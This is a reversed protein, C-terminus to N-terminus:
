LSVAFPCARIFANGASLRRLVGIAAHRSRLAPLLRHQVAVSGSLARLFQGNRFRGQRVISLDDTRSVAVGAREEMKRDASDENEGEAKNKRNM